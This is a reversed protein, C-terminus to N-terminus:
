TQRCQHGPCVGYDYSQVINSLQVTSLDKHIYPVKIHQDDKFLNKIRIANSAEIRFDLEQPINKKMDKVMWDYDFDNFLKKGLTAFMEVVLMDISSEEQLWEHQVKVAVKEGNKLYAEHVQAISASKLPKEEFGTESFFVTSFRVSSRALPLSLLISSKRLTLRPLVRTCRLSPTVTSM